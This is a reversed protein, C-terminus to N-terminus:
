TKQSAASWEPTLVAPRFLVLADEKPIRYYNKRRYVERFGLKAYLRRAASNSERVDLWVESAGAETGQKIMEAVLRQAIQKGRHELAVAVSALQMEEMVLYACLYGIIEAQRSAPRAVLMISNRDGLQDEFGKKPWPDSFSEKELQVIEELDERLMPEIVVATQAKGSGIM